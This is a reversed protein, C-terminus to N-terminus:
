VEETDKFYKDAIGQLKKAHEIRQDLRDQIYQERQDNEGYITEKLEELEERGKDYEDIDIKHLSAGRELRLAYQYVMGLEETRERLHELYEQAEEDEGLEAQVSTRPSEGQKEAELINETYAFVQDDITEMFDLTRNVYETLKDYIDTDKFREISGEETKTYVLDEVATLLPSQNLGETLYRIGTEALETPFDPVYEELFFNRFQNYVSQGRKALEHGWFNKLEYFDQNPRQSDEGGEKLEELRDKVGKRGLRHDRRVELWGNGKRVEEEEYKGLGRIDSRIYTEEDGKPRLYKQLLTNLSKFTDVGVDGSSITEKLSESLLAKHLDKRGEEESLDPVEELEEALGELVHKEESM